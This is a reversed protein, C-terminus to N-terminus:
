SNIPGNLGNPFFLGSSANREGYVINLVQRTTRSYALGNLSTPVINARGKPGVVGQDDEEGSLSQRLNSITQAINRADQGKQFVNVRINGAHYAEVALIGAAAELYDKNTILPAAGKFATVGVDEFLFAGLLFNTENAFPDFSSGGAAQALTNFSNLLDIPPQAVPEVGAQILTNRIFKVHSREDRAIEIAFEEVARTSFPVKPNDKITVFGPTGSGSIDIGFSPIGHGTTAYTYYQAELYELNLAFKLIAVDLDEGAASATKTFASLATLGLAGVGLNRLAQRRSLRNTKALSELNIQM